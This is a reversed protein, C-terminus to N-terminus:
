ARGGNMFKMPRAATTRLMMAKAAAEDFGAGIVADATFEDIVVESQTKLEILLKRVKTTDAPYEREGVFWGTPQKRLTSKSGDGKSIRVETVDNLQTKLAKMVPSGVENDAIQVKRSSVWLALLIIVLAAGLLMGGRRGNM